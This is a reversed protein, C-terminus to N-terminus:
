AAADTAGNGNRSDAIASFYVDELTPESAEFGDGPNADANVAEENVVVETTSTCGSDDSVTVTYTNPALNIISATIEGNSWM